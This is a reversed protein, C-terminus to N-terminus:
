VITLGSAQATQERVSSDMCRLLREVYDNAIKNNEESLGQTGVLSGFFRISEVIEFMNIPAAM